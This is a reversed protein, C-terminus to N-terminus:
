VVKSALKGGLYTLVMIVVTAGVYLVQDEIVQKDSRGQTRAIAWGTASVLVVGIVANVM